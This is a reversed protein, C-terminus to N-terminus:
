RARRALMTVQEASPGKDSEVVVFEVRDGTALSAFSEGRFDYRHVFCDLHGDDRSVYGYGKAENFWKVTGASRMPTTLMEHM